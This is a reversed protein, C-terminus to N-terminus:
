LRHFVILKVAALEDRLSVTSTQQQAKEKELVFVHTRLRSREERM